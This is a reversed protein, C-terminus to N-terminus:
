RPRLGYSELETPWANICVSSNLIRYIEMRQKYVKVTDQPSNLIHNHRSDTLFAKKEPIKTLYHVDRKNACTRGHHVRTQRARCNQFTNKTVGTLRQPVVKRVASLCYLCTKFTLININFMKEKLIHHDVCVKVEKCKKQIWTKKIKSSYTVLILSSDTFAESLCIITKSCYIWNLCYKLM